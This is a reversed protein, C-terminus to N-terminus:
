LVARSRWRASLKPTLNASRACDSGCLRGTRSITPTSGRRMSRQDVRRLLMSTRRRSSTAANWRSWPRGGVGTSAIASASCAVSSVRSALCSGRVIASWREVQRPSAVSTNPPSRPMAAINSRASWGDLSRGTRSFSAQTSLVAAFTTCRTSCSRDTHCLQCRIPSAWRRARAAAGEAAWTGSSTSRTTSRAIRTWEIASLLGSGILSGSGSWRTSRADTYVMAPECCYVEFRIRSASCRRTAAAPSRFPRRIGPGATSRAIRCASASPTGSLGPWVISTRSIAVEPARTWSAMAGAPEPLVVAMFARALAHVLAPPVTRPRAGDAVAAAVRPSWIPAWASVRALSTQDRSCSSWGAQSLARPRLLRTMMSSAPIAPVRVRSVTILWTRALPALTRSMPSLWCSAAISAPPTRRSM